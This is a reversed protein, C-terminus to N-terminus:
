ESKIPVSKIDGENMQRREKEGFIQKGSYRKNSDSKIDTLKM